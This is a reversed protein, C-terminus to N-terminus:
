KNDALEKLTGIIEQPKNSCIGKVGREVLNKADQADDVTWVWVDSDEKQTYDKWCPKLIDYSCFFRGKGGRVIFNSEPNTDYILATPIDSFRSFQMIALPNFSSVLFRDPNKPHKEIAEKLVEATKKAVAKCKLSDIKLEVDVYVDSGLLDLVDSLLPIKEATFEKKFWVGYDFKLLEAYTSEEITIDPASQPESMNETYFRGTRQISDDHIVVLKGDKTLHVDLEVGPIGLEKVKKFAPMTNEPALSSVGRHAFLFPRTAHPFISKHQSKKKVM